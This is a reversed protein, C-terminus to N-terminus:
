IKPPAPDTIAKPKRAKVDFRWGVEELSREADVARRHLWQCHQDLKELGTEVKELDSQKWFTDRSDAVEGRLQQVDSCRARLMQSNGVTQLFGIPALTRSLKDLGPTKYLWPTEPEYLWAKWMITRMGQEFFKKEGQEQTHGNKKM